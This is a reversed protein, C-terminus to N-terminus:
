PWDDRKSPVRPPLCSRSLKNENDRQSHRNRGTCKGAIGERCPWRALFAIRRPDPKQLPYPFSSRGIRDQHLIRLPELQVRSICHIHVEVNLLNFKYVQSLHKCLIT